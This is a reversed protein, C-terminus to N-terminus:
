ATFMLLLAVVKVLIFYPVSNRGEYSTCQELTYTVTNKM